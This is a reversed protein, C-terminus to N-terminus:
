ALRAAPLTAHRPPPAVSLGPPSPTAAPVVELTAPLERLLFDEGLAGADLQNPEIDLHLGSFHFRALARVIAVLRDRRNPFIWDPDGLLLEVRLGQARAADLLAMLRAGGAPTQAHEIQKADLSLLLRGVHSATFRDAVDGPDGALLPAANWVYAGIAGPPPAACPLVATGSGRPPPAVPDVITADQAVVPVPLVPLAPDPTVFTAPVIPSPRPAPAP